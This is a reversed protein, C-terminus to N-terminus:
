PKVIKLGKPPCPKEGSSTVLSVPFGKANVNGNADFVYLYYTKCPKLSGRRVTTTIESDQWATPTTITLNTCAEYTDKDGIEVRARCNPGSAFYFDDFTPHSLSGYTVHCYTGIEVINYDHMGDDNSMNTINSDNRWDTVTNIGDYNLYRTQCIGKGFGSGIWYIMMRTWRGKNMHFGYKTYHGALNGFIAGWQKGTKDAVGIAGVVIDNWGHGRTHNIWVQKWNVGTPNGTGPWEDEAPLYVWWCGFIEKTLPFSTGVSLRGTDYVPVCNKGSVAQYALSGSHSVSNTYYVHSAGVAYHDSGWEWKGVKARSNDGYPFILDNEGDEFDDFIVINPGNDGFDTGKITIANGDFVSGKVIHISPAAGAPLSFTICFCFIFFLALVSKCYLDELITM